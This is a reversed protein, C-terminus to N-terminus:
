ETSPAKRRRPVAVLDTEKENLSALRELVEYLQEFTFPKALFSVRSNHKTVRDAASPDGSVLITALEPRIKQIAEVLEPGSCGPMTNDVIIADITERSSRLNALLSHGDKFVTATHGRAALAAEM